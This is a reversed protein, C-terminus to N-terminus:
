FRHSRAMGVINEFLIIPRVIAGLVIPKLIV